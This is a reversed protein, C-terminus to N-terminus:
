LNYKLQKQKTKPNHTVKGLRYSTCTELSFVDLVFVSHTPGQGGGRGWLHPAVQNCPSALLLSSSYEQGLGGRRSKAVIHAFPEKVRGEM